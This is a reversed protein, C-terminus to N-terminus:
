GVDLQGVPAQLYRASDLKRILPEGIMNPLLGALRRLNTVPMPEPFGVYVLQRDIARLQDVNRLIRGAFFREQASSWEPHGIRRPDFADYM